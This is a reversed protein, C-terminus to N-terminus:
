ETILTTLFVEYFFDSMILEINHAIKVQSIIASFIVTLFFHFYILICVFDIVMRIIFDGIQTHRPAIKNFYGFLYVVMGRYLEAIRRTDGMAACHSVVQVHLYLLAEYRVLTGSCGFSFIGEKQFREFEKMQLELLRQM